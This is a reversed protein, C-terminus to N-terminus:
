LKYKTIEDYNYIFLIILSQKICLIKGIINWFLIWWLYQSLKNLLIHIVIIKIYYIWIKVIFNVNFLNNNFRLNFSSQAQLPMIAKIEM